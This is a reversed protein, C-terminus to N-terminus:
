IIGLQTAVNDDRRVDVATSVARRPEESRPIPELTDLTNGAKQRFTLNGQRDCGASADDPFQHPEIRRSREAVDRAPGRGEANLDRTEAGVRHGLSEHVGHRNFEAMGNQRARDQGLVEPHVEVGALDDCRKIHCLIRVIVEVLALREDGETVEAVAQGAAVRVGNM